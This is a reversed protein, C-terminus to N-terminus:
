SRLKADARSANTRSGALEKRWLRALAGGLILVTLAGGARMLRQGALVYNHQNPDYHYCFLLVRDWTSGLKGESAETLAMRLDREPFELGTLTQSLKGNPTLVFVAAPHAFQDTKADWKYHFGVTDAIRHAVADDALLFDWGHADVPRGLARLYNGRKAAATSPTDRTDFSVTVVRYEKGPTWALQAVGNKVGNLVFSCLMPCQYYALQLLVPHQGDFYDGLKVARGDQDRLPLDLPLTAGRKDEVEIERLPIPVPAEARARREAGCLACAAVAALATRRLAPAIRDSGLNV